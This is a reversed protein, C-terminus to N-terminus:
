AFARAAVTRLVEAYHSLPPTQTGPVKALDDYRRLRVAAPAHPLAIFQQAQAESYAGGQLVLSDKSAQSLTDWYGPQAQCLYRKAEVHMRIPDLVAANFVGSVFPIALYQHVDDQTHNFEDPMTSILHGLDHLLCAAVLDPPEHALEALHACQLAHELQSVAERGYKEKGRTELVEIIEIVTLAM